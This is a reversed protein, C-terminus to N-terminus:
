VLCLLLLLLLLVLPQFVLLKPLPRVSFLWYFLWRM